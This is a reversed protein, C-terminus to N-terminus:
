GEADGRDTVVRDVAIGLDRLKARLTKRDVGLLERRGGPRSRHPSEVGGGRGCAAHPGPRRRVPPAAWVGCLKGSWM